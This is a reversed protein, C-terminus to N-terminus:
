PRTAAIFSELKRLAAGSDLARAALRIGEELDAAVGGVMLAAASNWIVAERRPGRIECALIGRILAANTGADGGSLAQNPALTLGYAAPDALYRRLTGDALLEAVQSPGSLSLEDLGGHGHVVLARQVGLAKLALAMLDVLEPKYVGLVQRQPRLPNCLPGLLNFVTPFGLERRIQAVHRMAPHYTPAFLFTLDHADLLQAAREPALAIDAGLAELVDASGCQSSASRNGHKAIKLGLSAAVFAVTTSLNFTGSRDGGTGCTDLLDAWDGPVTLAHARMGEAMGAIETASEGKMRLATLFSAVQVPSAEGAFIQTVVARALARDMAHGTLVQQTATTLPASM